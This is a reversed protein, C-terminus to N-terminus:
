DKLASLVENVTILESLVRPPQRPKLVVYVPVGSRGLATLSHTIAPDQRTWDARLLAVNQAQLVAQVRDDQLTTRENFQCTVCWAATYDVFVTRGADTLAQQRQVSWAQWGSSPQAAGQSAASATSSADANRVSPDLGRLLPVLVAIALVLSLACLPLLIMRARGQLTWTWLVGGLTVLVALMAASADVGSQQGLVWVLWVVTL